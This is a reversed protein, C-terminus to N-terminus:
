LDVMVGAEDTYVYIEYKHRKKGFVFYQYSQRRGVVERFDVDSTGLLAELYTKCRDVCKIQFPTM